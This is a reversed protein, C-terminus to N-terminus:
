FLLEVLQPRLFEKFYAILEEEGFNIKYGDKEAIISFDTKIDNVEKIKVGKDLLGKANANFYDTLAKADKTEISVEQNKAMGEAIVLLTKQMFAKDATAAQVSATTVEGCIVDTIETKLANVAQQTFLKLEVETNKKLEATQENAQQITKEAEAKAKALIQAAQEEAEAVIKAAEEQGKEIGELYIKDTLEQLKTNM